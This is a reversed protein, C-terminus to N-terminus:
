IKREDKLTQIIYIYLNNYKTFLDTFTVPHKSNEVIFKNIILLTVGIKGGNINTRCLTFIFQSFFM